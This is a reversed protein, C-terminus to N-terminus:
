KKANETPCGVCFTIVSTLLFVSKDRFNKMKNTNLTVEKNLKFVTFGYFGLISM